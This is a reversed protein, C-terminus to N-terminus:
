FDSRISVKSSSAISFQRPRMIPFVDFIYNLPIQLGQFEALVELITRRTRTVYEYLDEQFVDNHWFAGIRGFPFACLAKM